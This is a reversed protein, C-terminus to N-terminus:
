AGGRMREGEKQEEEEEGKGRGRLRGRAQWVMKRINYFMYIDCMHLVGDFQGCYIDM